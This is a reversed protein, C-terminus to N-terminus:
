REREFFYRRGFYLIMFLVAFVTTELILLRIGAFRNKLLFLPLSALVSILFYNGMNKIPFLETINTDVTKTIYYVLIFIQIITTILFSIAPGYIGMFRLLTLSLAGNLVLELLSIFLVTKTKGLLNLINGYNTLRFPLIFLTIRFIAISAYFKNSYLALIFEKSVMLFFIFLPLVLLSTKDISKRIVSVLQTHEEKFHFATIDPAIVAVVSSIFISILPIQYSGNIYIAYYTAGLFGSIIIKDMNSSLIGLINNLAIPHSYSLIKGGIHFNPKTFKFHYVFTLILFTVLVQLIGVIAFFIFISIFSLSLWYYIIIFVIEITNFFLYYLMVLKEKRRSILFPDLISSFIRGGIFIGYLLLYEKIIVNGYLVRSNLSAVYTLIIAGVSLLSMIYIITSIFNNKEDDNFRPLFYFVATPIGFIMIAVIIRSTLLSQQYIGYYFKSLIHSLIITYTFTTIAQFLKGTAIFLSRKFLGM